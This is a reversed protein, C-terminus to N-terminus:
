QQMALNIVKLMELFLPSFQILVYAIGTNMAMTLAKEKMGFMLLFLSGVFIVSAIPFSITILLQIIPEAMATFLDFQLSALVEATKEAVGSEGTVPITNVPITSTEYLNNLSAQFATFDHSIVTNDNLGLDSQPETTLTEYFFPIGAILPLTTAAAAVTKKNVISKHKERMEEYEIDGMAPVVEIKNRNWFM